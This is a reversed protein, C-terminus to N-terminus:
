ATAEACALAFPRALEVPIHATESAKRSKARRAAGQAWRSGGRYKMPANSRDVLFPPLRGWLWFAGYRMVPEGYIARFHKIAGRVNEVVWFKPRRAPPMRDMFTKPWSALELDLANPREGRHVQPNVLSFGPCPPGFCAVELDLWDMPDLGRVDALTFEGPAPEGHDVNDVARVHFGAAALAKGWGHKGAFFDAAQRM